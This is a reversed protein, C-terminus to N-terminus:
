AAKRQERGRAGRKRVMPIVLARSIMFLQEFGLRSRETGILTGLPSAAYTVTIATYTESVSPLPFGLILLNVIM